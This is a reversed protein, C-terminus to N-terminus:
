HNFMFEKTNILAWIIDEYAAEIRHSPHRRIHTLATNLEADNPERAFAVVYLESVKDEHSRDADRTLEAARGGALKKTIDSSNLQHLSQALSSESRRECECASAGKPRGFLSLFYSTTDTTPIQVAKMQQPAGFLNGPAMFQFRSTAGTVTDIADLLVEANLRRPYYRSFNQKDGTNHENPIADLQYTASRCILRILAKLDFGSRVFYEALADLLKPNTAPNTVRMDDEPDVLGLDFFHKWYRNVLMRAFFPNEPEVMWDVLAHRPDAHAELAQPPGGLTRPSLRKGTRPNETDAVGFIHHIRKGGGPRDKTGVQSFFAKMAHYDEQSWKEYPHHHCQACQMRVGLFMQAVDEMRKEPTPVQGYWAVPPHHGADGSAAIIARVFQDFPRNEYFSERIWDYFAFTDRNKRKNHLIASWKNAFFDAYDQSDLLRDILKDRRVPDGSDLLATVEGPTPLRGAIDLTARRIFTTDDCVPSPPLGLIALKDLIHEDIFNRPAPLEGIPAGLPVVARFVSAHEQYRIMVAVNGPRGTVKVVGSEDVLAMEKDNTEYLAARTVDEISGDSYRALVCVQQGSDRGMTRLPPLVEIAVVTPDAGDGYPMGQAIWRRIIRYDHSDLQMRTGGGHPVTNTAKQLLLSRRPAAPFLRRGRGEYVLREFDDQPEFGLLSLSFGNQGGSKGHCGGSNCGLKTFVPVVKNPFNVPHAVQFQDIVIPTKVAVGGPGTATVTARGDALPTILGTKSIKLIGAPTTQYAVRRTLDHLRDGQDVGTVLLQRRADPGRLLLGSARETAFSELYLSEFQPAGAAAPVESEDAPSTARLVLGEQEDAPSMARLLLGGILITLVICAVTKM